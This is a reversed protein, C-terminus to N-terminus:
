LYSKPKLPRGKLYPQKYLFQRNFYQGIPNSCAGYNFGKKERRVQRDEGTALNKKAQGPGFGTKHM